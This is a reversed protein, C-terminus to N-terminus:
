YPTFSPHAEKAEPALQNKPFPAEQLTALYALLDRMEEGTLLAPLAPPSAPDAPSSGHALLKQLLSTVPQKGVKSLHPGPFEGGPQEPRHPHCSACRVAPHTHFIERGQQLDGGYLSGLHSALPDHAVARRYDALAQHPEHHPSVQAAKTMELEITRDVSKGQALQQFYDRVLPAVGPHPHTALQIAAGQRLRTDDAALAATLVSFSQEPSLETLKQVIALHLAVPLPREATLLEDILPRLEKESLRAALNEFAFTRLLPPCSEQALLTRWRATGLGEPNVEYHALLALAEEVLPSEAQLLPLFSHSLLPLVEARPRAPQPSPPQTWNQLLRLAERRQDLPVHETLALEGLRRANEATGLHYASHLLRHWIAPAPNADKKALLEDLVAMLAPRASEIPTDHILRIAELRITPVHDFLFRNVGVHRLRHLALLVALRMEPLAHGSLGLLDLEQACGALGIVAAQLLEGDQQDAAHLALTLLPQLAEAVRLRGLSLAAQFSVRDSPDSLAAILRAPDSPPAEGLARAAQARLEPDPSSLLGLLAATAYPDDNRRALMALGWTAHLRALPTNDARLPDNNELAPLLLNEPPLDLLRDRLHLQQYFTALAQPHDALAIQAHLRVRQDRHGLLGALEAAERHHFGAALLTAVEAAEEGEGIEPASMVLLRHNRTAAETLLLEGAPSFALATIRRGWLFQRADMMRYSCRYREMAFTWLGSQEDSGTDQTLLFRGRALGGLATGPQFLLDVAPAPRPEAEPPSLRSSDGGAFLPILQLEGTAPQRVVTFPDGQENFAIKGPNQLGSHYVEFGSGEPECRFAVGQDPFRYSVGEQSSFTLGEGDTVGYLRGDPGLTLAVPHFGEGLVVEEESGLTGDGNLDSAAVLSRGRAFYSVGQYDLLTPSAAAGPSAREQPALTTGVPIRLQPFLGSPALSTPAPDRAEAPDSPLPLEEALSCLPLFALSLLGRM